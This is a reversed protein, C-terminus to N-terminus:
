KEIFDTKSRRIFAAAVINFNEMEDLDYFQGDIEDLPNNEYSKSFGEISGDQHKTIKRYEKKYIENAQKVLTAHKAAGILEFAAPAMDAYKGSPNYYYQNFGGNLVEAKLLWAVYIAQKPKSLELVFAFKKKYDDPFGALIADFVLQLLDEDDITSDIMEETLINYTTRNEFDGLPKNIKVHLNEDEAPDKKTLHTKKRGFLKQLFTFM